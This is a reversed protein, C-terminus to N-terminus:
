RPSLCIEAMVQIGVNKSAAILELLVGSPAPATGAKMEKLAHVVKHRGVCDVPGGAAYKEMDYDWDTEENIFREICDIWVRSNEYESFCLQGDNRSM